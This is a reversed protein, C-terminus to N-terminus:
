PKVDGGSAGDAEGGLSFGAVVGTVRSALELEEDRTECGSCSEDVFVM